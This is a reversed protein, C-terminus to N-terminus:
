GQRARRAALTMGGLALLVLAAIAMMPTTDGAGTNAIKQPGKPTEPQPTVSAAKVFSTTLGNFTISEAVVSGSEVYLGHGIVQYSSMESLLGYLSDHGGAGYTSGIAGSTTWEADASIDIHEAGPVAATLTPQPVPAVDTRLTTYQRGLTGEVYFFVPVQFTYGVADDAPAGVVAVGADFIDVLNNNTFDADAYGQLIQSRGTVSLGNVAGNSELSAFTGAGAGVGQHWGPYTNENPRISSSHVFESSASKVPDVVPADYLKTTAGNMTFSSVLVDTGPTKVLFGAGIPRAAPGLAAVIDDLSGSAHPATFTSSDAIAATTMWTDSSDSAAHYLTTYKLAGAGSQYFVPIQFAVKSPDSSVADLSEALDVISVTDPRNAWDDAKPGVDNGNGLMVLMDGAPAVVIGNPAQTAGINHDPDLHWTNYAAAEAASDAPVAIGDLPLYAPPPAAVAASGGLLLGGVALASAATAAIISRLKM